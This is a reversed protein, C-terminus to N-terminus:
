VPHDVGGHRSCAGQSTKSASYTGDACQYTSGSPPTSAQAPVPVCSSATKSWYYGDGCDATFTAPALSQMAETSVMLGGGIAAAAIAAAVLPARIM